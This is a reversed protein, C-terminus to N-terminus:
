PQDKQKTVTTRNGELAATWMEQGYTTFLASRLKTLNAIAFSGPHVDQEGKDTMVTTKLFPTKSIFWQFQNILDDCRGIAEPVTLADNEDPPPFGGQGGAVASPM